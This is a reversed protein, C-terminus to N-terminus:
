LHKEILVGSMNLVPPSQPADTLFIVPLWVIWRYRLNRVLVYYLVYKFTYRTCTHFSTVLIEWYHPKKDGQSSHAILQGLVWALTSLSVDFWSSALWCYFVVEYKISALWAALLSVWTTTMVAPPVPMIVRCKGFRSCHLAGHLFSQTPWLINIQQCSKLQM